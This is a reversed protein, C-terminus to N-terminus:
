NKWISTSLTDTCESACTRLWARKEVGVENHGEIADGAPMAELSLLTLGELGAPRTIMPMGQEDVRLRVTTLARLRDGLAGMTTLWLTGREGRQELNALLADFRPDLRVRGDRDRLMLNRRGFFTRPPHLTELYTHAIHLGHERELRDLAKEDYRAFFKATPIFAWTSRFMWLTSPGAAELRGLPWVTPATRDLHRPDREDLGEGSWETLDWVDRFAHAELLDAIGTGQHWGLQNFGERNTQPQHDIWVHSGHEGFWTLTRDVSGRDDTVPTPSHPALEMGAAHALEALRVFEPDELQPREGGHPLTGRQFLAKTIPVHHGLLGANTHELDGDSAGTLLARFTPPSSQDAHDTIVFAAPRGAPWPSLALPTTEGLLLEGSGVLRDSPELWRDPVPVRGKIDRWHQGVRPLHGFPRDAAAMLVLEVVVGRPDRGATVADVDDDVILTRGDLAIWKPDFRELVVRAAKTVREDRGMVALSKAVFHLRVSIARARM